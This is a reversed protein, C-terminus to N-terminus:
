SIICDKSRGSSHGGHSQGRVREKPVEDLSDIERDIGGLFMKCVWDGRSFPFRPGQVRQIQRKESLYDDTVDVDPIKKDWLTLYEIESNDDTCALFTVLVDGRAGREHILVQKLGQKDDMGDDTTPEGDTAILILLKKRDEHRIGHWKENLVQRLVRAIPTYGQPPIAFIQDLQASPGIVNRVPPRNLFYVDIGDNDLTSGIETVTQVTSKLEDWRTASASYPNAVSLGPATPTRMSGSDDAIVVINYAELRRLKLAFLNSIEYKAAVSQFAELQGPGVYVEEVSSYPPPQESSGSRSAEAQKSYSM